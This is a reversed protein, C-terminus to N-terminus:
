LFMQKQFGHNQKATQIAKESAVQAAYATGKKSGRFGLAGASATSLTEKTTQLQLLRTTLLQWFMFIAMHYQAAKNKASLLQSQLWLRLQRQKRKSQKQYRHLQKPEKAM